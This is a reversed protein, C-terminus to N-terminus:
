APLMLATGAAVVLLARRLAAASGGRDAFIWLALAILTGGPLTLAIATYPSTRGVARVLRRMADSRALRRGLHM